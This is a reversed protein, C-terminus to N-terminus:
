VAKRSVIAANTGHVVSTLLLPDPGDLKLVVTYPDPAEVSQVNQWSISNVSGAKPNAARDFSFKVDESTMEGYGKHFQVGKRLCQAESHARGLYACD